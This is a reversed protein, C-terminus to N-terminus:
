EDKQGGWDQRDWSLTKAASDADAPQRWKAQHECAKSSPRVLSNGADQSARQVSKAKSTKAICRGKVESKLM